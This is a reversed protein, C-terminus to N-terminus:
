NEFRKQNYVSALNTMLFLSMSKNKGNLSKAFESNEVCYYQFGKILDAPIKLTKIYYKNPFLYELKKMLLEKKEVEINKKLMEREGSLYSYIGLIGGSSAYLKREQPTLKIQGHPIIGLNEANIGADKNIVVENLEVSNFVMNVEMFGSSYEYKYVYRKLYKYDIGSFNLIDGEKAQISFCGERDTVTMMKNMCNIVSIGELKTSDSVVTGIINKEANNQANLLHFQSVFVFLVMLNNRM